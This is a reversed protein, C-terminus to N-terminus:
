CYRKISIIEPVSVFSYRLILSFFLQMHMQSASYTLQPAIKEKSNEKETLFILTFGALNEPTTLTECPDM